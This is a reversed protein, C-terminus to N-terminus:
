KLYPIQKEIESLAKLYSSARFSDSVLKIFNSKNHWAYDEFEIQHHLNFKPQWQNNVPKIVFFHQEQGQFGRPHLEPPWDYKIPNKCKYILEFETLGVEENVERKLAIEASEGPDIGGQPLQWNKYQDARKCLLIFGGDNIIFSAVNQRYPLTM